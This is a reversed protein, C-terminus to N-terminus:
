GGTRWLGRGGGSSRLIAAVSLMWRNRIIWCVAVVWVTWLFRIRFFSEAVCGVNQLRSSEPFLRRWLGNRRSVSLILKVLKLMRM